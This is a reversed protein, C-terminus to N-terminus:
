CRAFTHEFFAKGRDADARHATMEKLDHGASFLKGAAAIVIVRVTDDESAADLAAQLSEMVAMSLANAPPNNLTLRLVSDQREINLPEAV